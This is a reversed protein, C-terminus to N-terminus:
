LHCCPLVPCIGKVVRRWAEREAVLQRVRGQAQAEERELAKFKSKLTAMSGQLEGIESILAGADVEDEDALREREKRAQEQRREREKEREQEADQRHDLRTKLGDRERTMLRLIKREKDMCDEAEALEEKLHMEREQLTAITASDRAREAKREREMTARERELADRDRELARYEEIPVYKSPDFEVVSDGGRTGPRSEADTEEEEIPEEGEGEGEGEVIEEEEGEGAATPPRAVATGPRSRGSAKSMMTPM